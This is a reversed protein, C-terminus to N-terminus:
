LQEARLTFRVIAGGAPNPEYWIRGGHLDIIDQCIALGMGMGTRKDSYLPEFIYQVRDPAIGSGEDAVSIQVMEDNLIEVAIAIVGASIGCASISHLANSLLNVLVLQIQLVDVLVPVPDRGPHYEIRCGVADCEAQVM